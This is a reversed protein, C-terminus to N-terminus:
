NYIIEEDTTKLKLLAWQQWTRYHTSLTNVKVIFGSISIFSKFSLIYVDMSYIANNVQKSLLHGFNCLDLVFATGSSGWGLWLNRKSHNWNDKTLWERFFFRITFELFLERTQFQVVSQTTRLFRAGGARSAFWWKTWHTWATYVVKGNIVWPDDWDDCQRDHYQLAQIWTVAGFGSLLSAPLKIRTHM